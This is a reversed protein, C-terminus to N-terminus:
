IVVSAPVYASAQGPTAAGWFSPEPVKIAPLPEPEPRNVRVEVTAPAPPPPVHRRPESRTTGIITGFLIGLGILTSGGVINRTPLVRHAM